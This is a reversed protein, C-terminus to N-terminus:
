KKDVNEKFEEILTNVTEKTIKELNENSFVKTELFEKANEGFVEKAKIIASLVNKITTLGAFSTGFQSIFSKDTNINKVSGQTGDMGFIAEFEKLTLDGGAFFPLKGTKSENVVILADLITLRNRLITDLDKHKAMFHLTAETIQGQNLTTYPVGTKKAMNFIKNFNSDNLLRGSKDGQELKKRAEDRRFYEQFQARLNNFQEIKKSNIQMSNNRLSEMITKSNQISLQIAGDKSLSFQFAKADILQEMTTHILFSNQDGKVNFVYDIKNGTIKKRTSQIFSYAKIMLDRFQLTFSQIQSDRVRQASIFASTSLRGEKNFPNKVGNNKATILTKSISKFIEEMKDILDLFYQAKDVISNLFSEGLNETDGEAEIALNQIEEKIKEFEEAKLIESVGKNIIDKVNKSLYVRYNKAM